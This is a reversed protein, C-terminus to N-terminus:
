DGDTETGTLPRNTSHGLLACLKKLRQQATLFASVASADLSDAIQAACVRALTLDDSLSLCLSELTEEIQKAKGSRKGNAKRWRARARAHHRQVRAFWVSKVRYWEDPSPVREGYTRCHQEVEERALSDKDAHPIHKWPVGAFHEVNGSM